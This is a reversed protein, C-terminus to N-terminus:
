ILCPERPPRAPRCSLMQIVSKQSRLLIASIIIVLLECRRGLKAVCVAIVINHKLYDSAVSIFVFIRSNGHRCINLWARRSECFIGCSPCASGQDNSYFGKNIATRDANSFWTAVLDAAM